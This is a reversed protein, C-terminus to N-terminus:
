NGDAAPRKFGRRVLARVAQARRGARYGDAALDDAVPQWTRYGVLPSHVLM